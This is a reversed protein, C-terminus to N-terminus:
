LDKWVESSKASHYLGKTASLSFISSNARRDMIMSESSRRKSLHVDPKIDQMFNKRPKTSKRPLPMGSGRYESKIQNSLTPLSVKAMKEEVVDQPLKFVNEQQSKVFIAQNRKIFRLPLFVTAEKRLGSGLIALVAFKNPSIGCYNSASFVTLLRKAFHMTIGAEACEHGRVVLDINNQTLFKMFAKQGFIYGSGRPSPSFFQITENPDSWLISSSIEENFGCLPRSVKEIDSIQEVNPGIGGHICLIKNQVLAALPIMEFASFFHKAVNTNGYISQIESLFGGESCIEKFEHNGRIIFVHQPWLVKM